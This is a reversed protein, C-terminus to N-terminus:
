SAVEMQWFKLAFALIRQERCFARVAEDIWEEMADSKEDDDMDEGPLDIIGPLSRAFKIWDHKWDIVDDDDTFYDQLLIKGLIERLISPLALSIFKESKIFFRHNPIKNNILLNPGNVDFDVKYIQDDLDKDPIVPLLSKRNDEEIRPRSPKVADAAALILGNRGKTSSVKIRFRVNDAVGFESIDIDTPFAQVGVTGANIRKWISQRYPEVWIKAGEPLNYDSLDLKKLDFALLSNNETISIGIDRKRIRQRGTYNLHRVAM